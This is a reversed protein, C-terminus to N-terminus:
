PTLQPLPTDEIILTVGAEAEAPTTGGSQGVPAPLPTPTPRPTSSPPTGTFVTGPVTASATPLPDSVLVADLGLFEVVNVATKPAAVVGLAVVLAALGVAMALGRRVRFPERWAFLGEPALRGNRQPPRAEDLRADMGPWLDLDGPVGDEAIARLHETVRQENM